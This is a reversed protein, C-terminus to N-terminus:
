ILDATCCQDSTDQTTNTKMGLSMEWRGCFSVFKVQIKTAHQCLSLLEKPITNYDSNYFLNLEVSAQGSVIGPPPAPVSVFFKIEFAWYNFDHGRDILEQLRKTKVKSWVLEKLGNAKLFRNLRQQVDVHNVPNM